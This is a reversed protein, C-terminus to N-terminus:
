IKIGNDFEFYSTYKCRLAEAMAELEEQSFKGTKLRQSISVQSMGMRKGLETLSIGAYACATKVKQQLTIIIVGM